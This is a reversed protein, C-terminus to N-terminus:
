KLIPSIISHKETILVIWYFPFIHCRTLPSLQQFLTNLYTVFSPIERVFSFVAIAPGDRTVSLIFVYIYIPLDVHHYSKSSKDEPRMYKRPSIPFLTLTLITTFPLLNWSLSLAMISWPLPLIFPDPIALHICKSNGLLMLPQSSTSPWPNLSLGAVKM